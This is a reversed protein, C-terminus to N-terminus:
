RRLFSPLSRVISRGIGNNVEGIPPTLGSAGFDYMNTHGVFYIYRFSRCGSTKLCGQQYRTIVGVIVNRHM